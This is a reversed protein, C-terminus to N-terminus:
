STYDCYPHHRCLQCFLLMKGDQNYIKWSIKDVYKKEVNEYIYRAGVDEDNVTHHVLIVKGQKIVFGDNWSMENTPVCIETTRWLFLQIM